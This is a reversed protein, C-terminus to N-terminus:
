IHKNMCCEKCLPRLHPRGISFLLMYSECPAERVQQHGWCVEFGKGRIRLDAQVSAPVLCKRRRCIIVRCLCLWDPKEFICAGQHSWWREPLLINFFSHESVRLHKSDSKLSWPWSCLPKGIAEFKRCLLKYEWCCQANMLMLMCVHVYMCVYMYMLACMCACTYVCTYTLACICANVHVYVYTCLHVCVYTSLYTYVYTCLYMCMHVHTCVYMHSYSFVDMHGNNCVSMCVYLYRLGPYKGLSLTVLGQREKGLDREGSITWWGGASCWEPEHGRFLAPPDEGWRRLM